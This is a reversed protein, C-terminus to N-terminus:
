SDYPEGALFSAVYLASHAQTVSQYRESHGLVQLCKGELFVAPVRLITSRKHFGPMSKNVEKFCLGVTCAPGM